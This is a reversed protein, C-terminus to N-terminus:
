TPKLKTAVSPVVAPTAETKKADEVATGPTVEVAPVAEKPKDYLAMRKIDGSGGKM